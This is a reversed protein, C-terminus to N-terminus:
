HPLLKCEVTINAVWEREVLSGNPYRAACDYVGARSLDLNFTQLAQVMGPVISGNIFWVLSM